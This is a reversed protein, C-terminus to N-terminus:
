QKEELIFMNYIRDGCNMHIRVKLIEEARIAQSSCIDIWIGQIKCYYQVVEEKSSVIVFRIKKYKLNKLPYLYIFGDEEGFMIEDIYAEPKSIKDLDPKISNCSISMYCKENQIIGKNYIIKEKGEISLYGRKTNFICNMTTSDIPSCVDRELYVRKLGAKQQIFIDRFSFYTEIRQFEFSQKLSSNWPIRGEVSDSCVDYFFENGLRVCIMSDENTTFSLYILPTNHSLIPKKVLVQSRKVSDNIEKDLMAILHIGKELLEFKGFRYLKYDEFKINEVERFLFRLCESKEDVVYRDSRETDIDKHFDIEKIVNYKEYIEKRYSELERKLINKKMNIDGCMDFKLQLQKDTTGKGIKREWLM